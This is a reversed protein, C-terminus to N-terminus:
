SNKKLFRTAFFAESAFYFLIFNLMLGPIAVMLPQSFVAVIASIGSIADLVLFGIATAYNKYRHFLLALLISILMFSLNAWMLVEVDVIKYVAALGGLGLSVFYFYKKVADCIQRADSITAIVSFQFFRHKSLHIAEFGPKQLDTESEILKRDIAERIIVARAEPLYEERLLLARVLKKDDLGKIKDPDFDM